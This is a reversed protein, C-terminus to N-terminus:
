KFAESVGGGVIHIPQSVMVLLIKTDQQVIAKGQVQVDHAHGFGCIKLKVAQAENM